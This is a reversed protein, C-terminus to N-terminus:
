RYREESSGLSMMDETSSTMRVLGVLARCEFMVDRVRNSVVM